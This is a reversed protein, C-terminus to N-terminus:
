ADKREKREMTESLRNFMWGTLTNIMESIHTKKKDAAGTRLDTIEYEMHEDDAYDANIIIGSDETGDEGVSIGTIKVHNKGEGKDASAMVDKVPIHIANVFAGVVLKLDPLYELLFRDNSDESLIKRDEALYLYYTNGLYVRIRSGSINNEIMVFQEPKEMLNMIHRGLASIRIMDASRELIQENLLEEIDKKLSEKSVIDPDLINDETVEFGQLNDKGCRNKCIELERLSLKMM